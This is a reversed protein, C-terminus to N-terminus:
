AISPPARTSDTLPCVVPMAFESAPPRLPRLASDVSVTRAAHSIPTLMPGLRDSLSHPSPAEAVSEANGPQCDPTQIECCCSSSTTPVAMGCLDQAIVACHSGAFWVFGILLATLVRMPRREGSYTRAQEVV